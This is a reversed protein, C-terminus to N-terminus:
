YTPGQRYHIMYLLKRSSIEDVSDIITGLAQMDPM